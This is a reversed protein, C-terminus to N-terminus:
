EDRARREAELARRKMSFEARIRAAERAHRAEREEFERLDRESRAAARELERVERRARRLALSARLAARFRRWASELWFAPFATALALLLGEALILFLPRDDSASALRIAVFAAIVAAYLTIALAVLVSWGLRAAVSAAAATRAIVTTLVVTLGITALLLGCAAFLRSGPPVDLDRLLFLVSVLEVAVLGSAWAGLPLPRGAEDSDTELRALDERRERLRVGAEQGALLSKYAFSARSPAPGLKREVMDSATAASLNAAQREQAIARFRQWSKTIESLM